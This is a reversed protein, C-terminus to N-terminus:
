NNDFVYLAGPINLSSTPIGSFSVYLTGDAAIAPTGAYIPIDSYGEPLPYDYHWKETGDSNLAYFTGEGGVYITGDVGITIASSYYNNLSFFLGKVIKYSWKEVGAPDIARLYGDTFVIYITGDAALSPSGGYFKQGSGEEISYTWNINGTELDFSYLSNKASIYGAADGIAPSLFEPSSLQGENSALDTQWRLNDELDKNPDYSLLRYFSTEAGAEPDGAAGIYINGNKDESPAGWINIGTRKKWKIQMNQDLTYVWGLNTTFFINNDKTVLVPNLGGNGQSGGLNVYQGMKWDYKWVVEDGPVIINGITDFTPTAELYYGVWNKWNLDGNPDLSILNGYLESGENSWLYVNGAGDISPSNIAWIDTEHKWKLNANQPGLYRSQGTRQNNGKYTPWPSLAQASLFLYQTFSIESELGTNDLTKIAFYYAKNLMLDKIELEQAEGKEKVLPINQASIASNFNDPTIESDSFRIDYALNENIGPPIGPASWTLKVAHLDGEVGVALFDIIKKPAMSEIVWSYEALTEDINGLEDKAKVKLSYEGLALNELITYEGCEVFESDDLSCLFTSNTKTSSFKFGVTTKITPNEPFEVITTELVDPDPTPFVTLIPTPTPTLAPTPIITPTPSLISEPSPTVTSTSTPVPTSSSGGGGGGGSSASYFVFPTASPIPTTTLSVFPTVSPVPTSTLSPTPIIAIEAVEPLPTAVAVQSAQVDIAWSAIDDSLWSFENAESQWVPRVRFFYSGAVQPAIVIFDFTGIEGPAIKVKELSAPRVATLWSSHYFKKAQDLEVYVNLSIKEGDWAISGTNKIEAKLAAEEGPAFVLRQDKLAILEASYVPEVVMAAQVKEVVKVQELIEEISYSDILPQSFDFELQAQATSTFYRSVSDISSNFFDGVKAASNFAYEKALSLGTKTKNFVTVTMNKASNYSAVATSKAANYLAIATTKGWNYLAIVSSKIQSATKNVPNAVYYSIVTPPKQVSASNKKVKEAEIKFLNIVGAASLVVKPALHSWYDSHIEPTKNNISYIKQNDKYLIKALRIKEEDKSLNYVFYEIKGDDLSEKGEVLNSPEIYAYITDQSFFNNNTYFALNDFYGDLSDFIVPIKGDNYLKNAFDFKVMGSRAADRTWDEYPEREGADYGLITPSAHFDSRVHAPVGEDEILHLVHGLSKYAHERDNNAYDWIGREWTYDWGAYESQRISNHVWQKSTLDSFPASNSQVTNDAWKSAGLPNYFHNSSRIPLGVGVAQDEDISGQRIWGAEEDTLKDSFNLNYLKVAEITLSPHIITEDYASIYNSFVIISFFLAIYVFFKIKNKLLSM